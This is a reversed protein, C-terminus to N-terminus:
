PTHQSKLLLQANAIQVTHGCLVIARSCDNTTRILVCETKPIYSFYVYSVIDPPFSWSQILLYVNRTIVLAHISDHRNMNLDPNALILFGTAKRYAIPVPGEYNQKPIAEM